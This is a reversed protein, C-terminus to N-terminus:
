SCVPVGEWQNTYLWKSCSTCTHERFEKASILPPKDNIRSVITRINKHLEVYVHKEDYVEHREIKKRKKLREKKRKKMTSM